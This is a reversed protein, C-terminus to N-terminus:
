VTPRAWAFRDQAAIPKLRDLVPVLPSLIFLAYMIGEPRYLLFQFLFALAAALGAFLIRHSRRDPTTKPDSIMFFAFLLVAGSQMQQMPIPLPDGLYLARLLLLGIYAALFALAIDARKARTLVLGALSIFLFASWAQSGWQAPSIWAEGTAIIATVIAFNAPNFVHKGNLRIVFKSGIAAASAAMLVEVSSARLLICLSLSTILASWPEFRPLGVARTGLWQTLLATAIILPIAELRQDFGLYTMGFTLLLGLSLLQWYRADALM